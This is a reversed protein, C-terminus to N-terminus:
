VLVSTTFRMHLKKDHYGRLFVTNARDDLAITTTIHGIMYWDNHICGSPLYITYGFPINVGILAIRGGDLKKGLVLPGRTDYSSPTLLHEFAHSELFIGPCRSQQCHVFRSVFQNRIIYTVMDVNVDLPPLKQGFPIIRVGLEDYLYKECDLANWLPVDDLLNKRQVRIIGTPGFVNIQSDSQIEYDPDIWKMKVILPTIKYRDQRLKPNEPRRHAPSLSLHKDYWDIKYYRGALLRGYYEVPGEEQGNERYVTISKLIDIPVSGNKAYIKCSVDKSLKM